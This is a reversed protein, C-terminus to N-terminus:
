KLHLFYDRIVYILNHMNAKLYINPFEFIFFGHGLWPGHGLWNKNPFWNKNLQHCKVPMVVM